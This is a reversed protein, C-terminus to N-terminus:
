CLMCVPMTTLITCVQLALVWSTSALPGGNGLDHDKGVYHGLPWYTSCPVGDRILWFRWLWWFLLHHLGSTASITLDTLRRWDLCSTDTHYAALEWSLAGPLQLCSFGYCKNALWDLQIKSNWTFHFVPRLFSPPSCSLRCGDSVEPRWLCGCMCKCWVCVGVGGCVYLFKLIFICDM